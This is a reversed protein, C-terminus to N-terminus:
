SPSNTRELQLRFRICGLANRVPLVQCGLTLASELAHEFLAPTCGYPSPTEGVDHTFFILWSRPRASREILSKM